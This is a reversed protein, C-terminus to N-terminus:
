RVVSKNPTNNVCLDEESKWGLAETGPTQEYIQVASELHLENIPIEDPKIPITNSGLKCLFNLAAESRTQFGM